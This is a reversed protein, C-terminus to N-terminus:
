KKKKRFKILLIIAAIVVVAVLAFLWFYEVITLAVIAVPSFVVDAHAVTALSFATLLSLFLTALKKM